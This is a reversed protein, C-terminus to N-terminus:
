FAPDPDAHIRIRFMAPCGFRALRDMYEAEHQRYAGDLEPSDTDTEMNFNKCFSEKLNSIDVAKLGNV